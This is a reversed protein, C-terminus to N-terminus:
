INIEEDSRNEFNNKHRLSEDILKQILSLIKNSNIVSNIMDQLKKMSEIYFTDNKKGTYERALEEDMVITVPYSVTGYSVFMMRYKYHELETDTATLYVEYQHNENGQEGLVNQINVVESSQFRELAVSFGNVLTYTQIPGDYDKINGVVYGDTAEEIQKLATKIVIEPACKDVLDFSFDGKNM